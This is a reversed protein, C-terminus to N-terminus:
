GFRVELVGFAEVDDGGFDGGHPVEDARYCTEDVGEAVVFGFGDGGGDQGVFGEFWGCADRDAGHGADVEAVDFVV